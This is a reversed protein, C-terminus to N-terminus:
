FKRLFKAILLFQARSNPFTPIKLDLDNQFCSLQFHKCLHSYHYIRRHIGILLVARREMDPPCEHQQTYCTIKLFMSTGEQPWARLKTRLDHEQWGRKALLALGGVVAGAERKRRSM